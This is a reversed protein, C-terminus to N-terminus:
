FYLFLHQYIINNIYYTIIIYVNEAMTNYIYYIIYM